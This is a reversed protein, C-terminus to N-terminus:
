LILLGKDLLNTLNLALKEISRSYTEEIECREQMLNTFDEIIKRKDCSNKQIM